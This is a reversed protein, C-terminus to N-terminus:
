WCSRMTNSCVSRRRRSRRWRRVASPRSLFLDLHSSPRPPSRLQHLQSIQLHPSPSLSRPSSPRPFAPATAIRSLAVRAPCIAPAPAQSRLSELEFKSVNTGLRKSMETVMQLRHEEEHVKANRARLFDLEENAATLEMRLQVMEQAEHIGAEVHMTELAQVAFRRQLRESELASELATARGDHASQMARMDHRAEAADRQAMCLRLELGNEAPVADSGAEVTFIKASGVSADGPENGPLGPCTVLCLASSPAHSEVHTASRWGASAGGGANSYVAGSTLLQNFVSQQKERARQQSMTLEAAELQKRLERACDPGNELEDIRKLLAGEKHQAMAVHKELAAVSEKAHHVEDRWLDPVVKRQLEHMVSAVVGKKWSKWGSETLRDSYAQLEEEWAQLREFQAAVEHREIGPPPRHM